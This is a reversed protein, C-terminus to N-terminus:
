KLKRKQKGSKKEVPNNIIDNMMDALEGNSIDTKESLVDMMLKQLEIFRSKRHSYFQGHGYNEEKYYAANIVPYNTRPENEGCLLCKCISTDRYQFPGDWGVCVSIHDCNDQQIKIESDTRNIEQQLIERRQLLLQKYNIDFEIAPMNMLREVIADDTESGISLKFDEIYKRMFQIYDTEDKYEKTLTYLIPNSSMMRKMKEIKNDNKDESDKKMIGGM